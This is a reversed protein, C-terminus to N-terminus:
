FSVKHGHKTYLLSTFSLLMKRRKGIMAAPQIEFSLANSGVGPKMVATKGVGTGASDVGVNSRDAGATFVAAGVSEEGMSPVVVVSILIRACGEVALAANPVIPM